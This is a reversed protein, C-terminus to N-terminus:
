KFDCAKKYGLRCAEEKKEEFNEDEIEGWNDYLLYCAEGNGLSCAEKFFLINDTFAVDRPYKPFCEEEYSIYTALKGALLCAKGNNDKCKGELVGFIEDYNENLYKVDEETFARNEKDALNDLILTAYPLCYANFSKCLNRALDIGERLDKKYTEQIYDPTTRGLATERRADLLTKSILLYTDCEGLRSNPIQISSCLRQKKEERIEKDSILDTEKFCSETDGLSCNKEYLKSLQKPQTKYKAKELLETKKLCSSLVDADCAIDYLTQFHTPLVDLAVKECIEPKDKCLKLARDEVDIGQKKEVALIDLCSDALGLDCGKRLFSLFMDKENKNMKEVNTSNLELYVYGALYCSHPNGLNCGKLFSQYSKKTNKKEFFLIGVQFCADKHKGSCAKDYLEFAIDGESEKAKQFNEEAENVVKQKTFFYYSSGGLLAIFFFLFIKKVIGEM